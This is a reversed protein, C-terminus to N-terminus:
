CRKAGAPFIFHYLDVLLLDMTVNQTKWYGQCILKGKVILFFHFRGFIQPIELNKGHNELNEMM